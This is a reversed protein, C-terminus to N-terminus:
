LHEQALTIRYTVIDNPQVTFKVTHKDDIRQELVDEEVLNTLCANAVAPQLNLVVDSATERVNWLRVIYGRGDEARKLALLVIGDGSVPLFSGSTPLEARESMKALIGQMPNTVGFGFEAAQERTYSGRASTFAYRFLIEGNQAVAFNTGLNNYFIDSYIWGHTIDGLEVRKHTTMEDTVVCRHAQSVYGTWLQGLSAVPADLSSWLISLNGDSAGVWNQVTIRDSQAGPLYDEIPRMIACVGEYQFQPAALKFPFALHADLLPTSDKLIRSAIDVRKIGKYLTISQTVIPHGHATAKRSIYGCLSNGVAPEVEVHEMSWNNGFPDRVILDFFGHAASDDVLECGCEKDYISTIRGSLKDAKIRYFENELESESTRVGGTYVPAEDVPMLEYSRYGLAPVDHAHFCLDRKLGTPIEFIGYRATGTGVGTREAAYPVPSHSDITILQHPVIDGSTIDRLVFKGSIIAQPLNAHWRDQLLVGRLTGAVSGPSTSPQEYLTSGCNDLERLPVRVLDSRNTGATNFVVLVPNATGVKVFDAIRAMAKTMVDHALAAGRHAHVAKEFQSAMASPGAPFHHGWSHEDHILADTYADRITNDQYRYDTIVSALSALKEAAVIEAHTNRNTATAAATSTAGIPYDQGPLEGHHTPLSVFQHEPDVSDKTLHRRLLDAYFMANTSCILHPYAWRENWKHITHAYGDIYPSNDRAGGIVPLRVVSLPYASESLQELTAELGPLDGHHDGGCGTNNCWLLLRKGSAAQWWFAGPGRWAFIKQQQWFSDIGKGGWGYYLPLGPIFIQVGADALVQAVGWSIGTIDNHEASTIPIGYQRKLAFSPYLSRILEEHGCLETIMNGYMATVEFQGSKLLRLMADRLPPTTERLFYDLSWAQEIVIRFQAEHPFHRTADAMAIADELSKQHVRLVNSPLDTYGLDHHSSQTVHVTFHRAPQLLLRHTDIVEDGVSLTVTLQTPEDTDAVYVDHQSEGQAVLMVDVINAVSSMETILRAAQQDGANYIAIRILRQLAANKRAIFVTPHIHAIHTKHISM